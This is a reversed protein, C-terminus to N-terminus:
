YALCDFSVIEWFHANSDSQVTRQTALQSELIKVKLREMLMLYTLGYNSSEEGALFECCDTRSDNHVTLQM